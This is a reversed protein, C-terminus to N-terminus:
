QIAAMLKEETLSGSQVDDIEDTISRNKVILIRDCNEIMESLESSVYIVGNGEATFRDMAAAIDMKAAIDVGYTPDDLLLLTPESKLAKGFVIKQQNGGSLKSISITQSATKVGLSDIIDAVVKKGKKDDIVIRHKALKDIIPLLANDYVSHMLSLGQTHRNEPVMFIGGKIAEGTNVSKYSKGNISFSGGTIKDIGFLANMIETRGSGKLGALGVVEGSYVSFSIEEALEKTKIGDVKIVPKSRDIKMGSRRNEQMSIGTGGIMASIVDMLSVDAVDKDLSVKGDTIVTVSDCNEM